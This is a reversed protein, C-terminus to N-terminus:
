TVLAVSACSLLEIGITAVDDSGPLEDIHLTVSSLGAVSAAIQEENIVLSLLHEEDPRVAQILDPCRKAAARLGLELEAPSFGFASDVSTVLAARAPLEVNSSKAEMVAAAEDLLRTAGDGSLAHEAEWHFTLQKDGVHEYYPDFQHFWRTYLTKTSALYRVLLVPVPQARFYGATSLKVPVRLAKKLDAEDTAKLQVYFRLGTARGGEFEEVEGDIGYDHDLARFVLRDPLAAAFARRSADELEQQRTRLPM